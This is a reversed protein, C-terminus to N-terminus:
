KLSTKSSRKNAYKGAITYNATGNKLGLSCNLCYVVAIACVVYYFTDTFM